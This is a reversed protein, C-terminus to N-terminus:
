LFYIKRSKSGHNYIRQLQEMYTREQNCGLIEGGKMKLKNIMVEPKYQEHQMLSAFALILKQESWPCLDICDRLHQFREKSREINDFTLTDSQIMKIYQNVSERRGWEVKLVVSASFGFKEMFFEIFKATKSGNNVAAKVFDNLNWRNASASIQAYDEVKADPDILVWAPIDLEIAAQVRHHGDCIVLEDNIIVPLGRKYGFQVMNEKIQRVRRQTVQKIVGDVRNNSNPILDSLEKASIQMLVGKKKQKM